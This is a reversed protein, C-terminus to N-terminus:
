HAEDTVGNLLTQKLSTVRSELQQAQEALDQIRLHQLRQEAAMPLLRIEDQLWEIVDAQTQQKRYSLWSKLKRLGKCFLHAPVDGLYSSLWEESDFQTQKLADAIRSPIQINGELELQGSKILEPLVSAEKLQPLVSSSCRLVCEFSQAKDTVSFLEIREAIVLGLNLQIDTLEIKLSQGKLEQLPKDTTLSHQSQYLALVRDAQQLLTSELWSKM